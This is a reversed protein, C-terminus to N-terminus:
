GLLRDMWEAACAYAGQSGLDRSGDLCRNFHDRAETIGAKLADIQDLLERIRRAADKDDINANRMLHNREREAREAQENAEALEARRRDENLELEQYAAVQEELKQLYRRLSANAELAQELTIQTM